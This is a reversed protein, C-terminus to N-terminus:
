AKKTGMINATGSGIVNNNGAGNDRSAANDTVVFGAKTLIAPYDAVAYHENWVEYNWRRIWWSNFVGFASTPPAPRRMRGEIPYFVGGPRLVRNVESMIKPEADPHVEHFLIFSTVIDFHNDPFHTDEALRQAFNAGNKMRSARMHAYRAMPGGADIGWVEANPFREKLAVTLQGCSCGLDLIRKVKGDQPVPTEKALGIHVGDQYNEGMWFNNTGYHYMHGALEDGVYGGPMMHIEEKTYAPLEMRPNVELAGPGAKDASEMESLYFDARSYLETRLVKWMLEQNRLWTNAHTMILPDSEMRAIMDARTAAKFPDMGKAQMLATARNRAAKALDTNAWVRITTLFADHSELDLKPLRMLRGDMGRGYDAALVSMGPLAASALGLSSAIIDRRTTM